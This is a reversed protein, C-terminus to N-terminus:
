RFINIWLWKTSSMKHTALETFAIHKDMRGPSQSTNRWLVMQHIPSQRAPATKLEKTLCKLFYLPKESQGHLFSLASEELEEVRHPNLYTSTNAGICVQVAAKARERAQEDTLTQAYSVQLTSIIVLILLTPGSLLYTRNSIWICVKTILM